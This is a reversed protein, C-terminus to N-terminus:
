WLSNWVAVVGLCLVLDSPTWFTCFFCFFWPRVVVQVEEAFSLGFEIMMVTGGVKKFLSSAGNGWNQQIRLGHHDRHVNSKESFTLHLWWCLFKFYGVGCCALRRGWLPGRSPIGTRTRKSNKNSVFPCPELRRSGDASECDRWLDLFNAPDYM